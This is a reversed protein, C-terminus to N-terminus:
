GLGERRELSQGGVRVKQNSRCQRQGVEMETRHNRVEHLGSFAVDRHFLMRAKSCPPLLQPLSRAERCGVRSQRSLIIASVCHIDRREAAQQRYRDQQQAQHAEQERTELAVDRELRDAAMMGLEGGPHRRVARGRGWVTAVTMPQPREIRDSSYGSGNAAATKMGDHGTAAISGIAM